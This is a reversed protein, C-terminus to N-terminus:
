LPDRMLAKFGAQVFHQDFTLATDAGSEQMVVFSICDVLGWSKDQHRRYLDLGEKFLAPTLPVIAVEKSHQFEEIIEAAQLKFSRALANGVELLVCDTMLLPYREYTQSLNLALTHYQDRPNALAVIFLTDM